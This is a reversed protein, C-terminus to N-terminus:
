PRKLSWEELPQRLVHFPADSLYVESSNDPRIFTSFFNPGQKGVFLRAVKKGGKDFLTVKRGVETVQFLSHKEPNSSVPTGKRLDALLAVVQGAKEPDAPGPAPVAVAPPEGAKSKADKSQEEIKKALETKKEAVGWEGKDNKSLRIGEMLNEIEIAAVEDKKLGPFLTSEKPNFRTSFPNEVLLVLVSLVLLVLLLYKVKGTM